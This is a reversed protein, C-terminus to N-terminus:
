RLLLLRKADTGGPTKLRVFYVGAPTRLADWVFAHSGAALPGEHLVAVTQGLLNVVTLSADGSQEMRLPITTRPNFPNPYCEGLLREGGPLTKEGAFVAGGPFFMRLANDIHARWNGWSHGEHYEVYQHPYGRSSLVPIFSRVLPILQAIDYTGLDLYLRLDRLPGNQYSTFVSSVINSSQAAVAGFVEPRNYGLHLSINGGNSAGLVARASPARRTRYRSDISPMLEDAIFTTFAGMQSGAYEATRNVPPVFIAIVPQILQAAILNDLVNNAQALTIYELGDHFLILPFSDLPSGYGPPTYIRVTRSNGLAASAYVTDRIQGHPISPNPLIEPAPVYQPMRLESNPGFGGSVTYPNRPDLIWTSGNLVFKYDLRADPEFDRSFYWLDTGQIRTMPFSSPTWGNADGPVTVSSAGGRYLFHCATDGETLPFRPVAAMFSDVIATRQSDPASQVRNLFAQFTQGRLPLAAALLFVLTITRKM